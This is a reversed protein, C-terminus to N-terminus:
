YETVDGRENVEFTSSFDLRKYYKTFPYYVSVTWACGVTQTLGAQTFSCDDITVYDIGKVGLQQTLRTRASAEVQNAYWEMASSKVVERMNLYDIYYPLFLKAWLGVAALLLVLVVTLWNVRGQRRRRHMAM